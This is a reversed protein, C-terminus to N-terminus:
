TTVKALYHKRHKTLKGAPKVVVMGSVNELLRKSRVPSLYCFLLTCFLVIKLTVEVYSPEFVFLHAQVENFDGVRPIHNKRSKGIVSGSNSIVVSM